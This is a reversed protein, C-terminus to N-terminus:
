GFKATVSDGFNARVPDQFSTGFSDEEVRASADGLCCYGSWRSALEPAKHGNSEAPQEPREFHERYLSVVCGTKRHDRIM